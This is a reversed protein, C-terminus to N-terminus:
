GAAAQTPTCDILFKSGRRSILRCLFKFSPILFAFILVNFTAAAIYRLYWLYKKHEHKVCQLQRACIIIIHQSRIHFSPETNDLLSRNERRSSINRRADDESLYIYDVTKKHKLQSVDISESVDHDSSIVSSISSSRHALDSKRSSVMFNLDNYM